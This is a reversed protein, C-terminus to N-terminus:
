RIAHTTTAPSPRHQRASSSRPLARVDQQTDRERLRHTSNVPWGGHAQRPQNQRRIALERPERHTDGAGIRFTTNTAPPTAGPEIAPKPVRGLVTSGTLVGTAAMIMLAIAAAALIADAAYAVTSRTMRRIRRIM